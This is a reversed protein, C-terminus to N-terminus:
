APERLTQIMYKHELDRISTELVDLEFVREDEPLKAIANAAAAALYGIIWSDSIEHWFDRDSNIRRATEILRTLTQEAEQEFQDVM